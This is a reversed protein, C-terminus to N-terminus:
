REIVREVEEKAQQYEIPYGKEFVKEVQKVRGSCRELRRHIQRAVQSGRAFRAELHPLRQQLTDVLQALERSRSNIIGATRTQIAIAQAFDASNLAHALSQFIYRSVDFVPADLPRALWDRGVQENELDEVSELEDQEVEEEGDSSSGTSVPSEPAPIAYMQSDISTTRSRSGIDSSSVDSM